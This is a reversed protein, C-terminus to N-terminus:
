VSWGRTVRGRERRLWAEKYIDNHLPRKGNDRYSEVIRLYEHVSGEKAKVKVSRLFM